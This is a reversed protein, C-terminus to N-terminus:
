EKLVKFSKYGDNTMVRIVYLGKSLPSIDLTLNHATMTLPTQRYSRGNMDILEVEKGTITGDKVYVNVLNKAPNPYVATQPNTGEEEQTVEGGVLM